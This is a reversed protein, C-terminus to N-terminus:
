EWMVGHGLFFDVCFVRQSLKPLYLFSGLQLSLKASSVCCYSIAVAADSALFEPNAPATEPLKDPTQTLSGDPSNVGPQPLGLAAARAPSSSSEGLFGLGPSMEGQRDWTLEQKEM